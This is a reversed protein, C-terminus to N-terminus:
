SDYTRRDEIVLGDRPLTGPDCLTVTGKLKLVDKIADSLANADLGTGECQVKM